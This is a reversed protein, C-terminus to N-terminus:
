ENRLPRALKDPSPTEPLNGRILFNRKVSELVLNVDRVGERAGRSLEPIGKAGSEIEVLILDIKSTLSPIETQLESATANLSVSVERLEKLTAMLEGYAEEKTVISGLTGQGELVRRTLLNINQAAGIVPGQRDQLFDAIATVDSLIADFQKLKQELQLSTIVQDLTNHDDAPIQGNNPIPLSEPSGTVIEIYESGIITPSKVMAFSDGKIRSAYEARVLLDMRIKNNDLLEVKTVSGIDLGLFRVKVGPILGYGDNFVLFYRQYDNFLDRGLSVLLAGTVLIIFGILIIVGTVKEKFAYSTPGPQFKAGLSSM